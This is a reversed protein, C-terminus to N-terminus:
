NGDTRDLAESEAEVVADDVSGVGTFEHAIELRIQLIPVFIDPLLLLCFVPPPNSELGGSNKHVAMNVVRACRSKCECPAHLSASIRIWRFLAEM